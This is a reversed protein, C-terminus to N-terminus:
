SMARDRIWQSLVWKEGSAPPLGAHLTRRDPAGAADVNAFIFGDGAGGKHRVGLLPFDTEGGAFGANLYTLFTAIRQGRREVDAAYGPVAPDLFDYHREFTEGPAYHLVQMPELAGAPVGITAAMRARIAISVVDLDELAFEFATNSRAKEIRGGGSGEADFVMAQVTRGHARAIMWACAAQSLFGEAVAMRPENLIRRRAAPALWASWDIAAALSDPAGDRGSSLVALQGQAGVHGARAAQALRRAAAHWDQPEWAGLAALMASIALADPDGAAARASVARAEEASM